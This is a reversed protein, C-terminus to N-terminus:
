GSPLPDIRVGPLTEAIDLYCGQLLLLSRGGLTRDFGLGMPVINRSPCGFRGAGSLLGVFPPDHVPDTTVSTDGDRKYMGHHDWSNINKKGTGLELYVPLHARHDPLNGLSSEVRVRTRRGVVM